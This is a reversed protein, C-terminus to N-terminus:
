LEVEFILLDVMGSEPTDQTKALVFSSGAENGVVVVTVESKPLVVVKPKNLVAPLKNGRHDTLDGFDIRQVDGGLTVQWFLLRKESDTEETVLFNGAFASLNGWVTVNEVVWMRRGRLIALTTNM